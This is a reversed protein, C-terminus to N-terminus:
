SRMNYELISQANDHVLRKVELPDVHGDLWKLPERIDPPRFDLRHMDTGLLFIRGMLIQKRCWRAEMSLFSGKLSDFNMQLRCRCKLLDELNGEDRLCAYREVHALVPWYGYDLLKRIGRHMQLYSVGPDFEVLVYPSGNLTWARHEALRDPLSDHYFTEQGTYLNFDPLQERIKIQLEETRKMLDDYTRQRLDHPTAVVAEIGQSAAMELLMLSEEVTRAGDDIGPLIHTHIDIVKISDIAM